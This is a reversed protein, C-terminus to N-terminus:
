TGRLKIADIANKLADSGSSWNQDSVNITYVTTARITGDLNKATATFTFQRFRSDDPSFEVFQYCDNINFLEWTGINPTGQLIKINENFDRYTIVDNFVYKFYGSITAPDAAVSTSSITMQPNAQTIVVPYYDRTTLGPTTTGDLNLTPAGITEEYYRISYSFNQFESVTGLLSSSPSWM